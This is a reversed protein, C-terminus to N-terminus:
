RGQWALDVVVPRHQSGVDPGVRCRVPRWGAGGLVHDIRLGIKRTFMTHGLGWGTRSFANAYASWDCQYLPHETTLNFDGGLLVSEPSEEAWRRVLTSEFRQVAAVERFKSLGRHPSEITAQLGARLTMLHVDIIPIKMGLWAVSARVAIIRSKDDPRYLTELNVIPHRSAVLFQEDMHLHWGERALAAYLDDLDCEQLLVVDPSEDRILAVFDSTRLDKMQVNCTLLRLTPSSVPLSSTLNVWPVNFGWIGAFAITAVCLAMAPWRLRMWLVLPMLVLLPLGVVYLPGFLLLHIPWFEPPSLQVAAWFILVAGAYLWCSAIMAARVVRSRSGRAVSLTPSAAREPLRYRTPGQSSM